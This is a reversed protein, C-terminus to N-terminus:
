KMMDRIVQAVLNGVRAAEPSEPDYVSAVNAPLHNGKSVTICALPNLQSPDTDLLDALEVDGVEMYNHVDIIHVDGPHDHYRAVHYRTVHHGTSSITAVIEDSVETWTKRTSTANRPNLM